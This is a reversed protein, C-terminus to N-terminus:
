AVVSFRVSPRHKPAADSQRRVLVYNMQTQTIPLKVGNRWARIHRVLLDVAAGAMDGRRECGRARVMLRALGLTDSEMAGSADARDSLSPTVPDSPLDDAPIFSPAPDPRFYPAAETAM